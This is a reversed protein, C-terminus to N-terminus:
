AALFSAHMGYHLYIMGGITELIQNDMEVLAALRYFNVCELKLSAYVILFRLAFSVYFIAFRKQWHCLMTLM